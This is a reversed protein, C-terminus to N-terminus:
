YKIFPIISLWLRRRRRKWYRREEGSTRSIEMNLMHLERSFDNIFMGIGGISLIVIIVCSIVGVTMLAPNIENNM